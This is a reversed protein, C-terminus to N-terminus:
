LLSTASMPDPPCEAQCSPCTSHVYWNSATSLAVGKARIPLQFIEGVVVWATPGWTSAFFFVYCCVFVVLTINAADSDPDATGVCAIVFECVCMALAGYILLPRRGFKEITYFSVPTSIVNVVTTVMSILFPNSLGISTFFTTNYSRWYILRTSDRAVPPM